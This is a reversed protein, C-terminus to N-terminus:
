LIDVLGGHRLVEGYDITAELFYEMHFLEAGPLNALLMGFSIPLLLLPEFKKVVALYFLVGIIVYMAVTKWAFVPDSAFKAFGTSKIFNVVTELM